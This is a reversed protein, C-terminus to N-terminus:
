AAHGGAQAAVQGRLSLGAVLSWASAPCTSLAQSVAPRRHNGPLPNGPTIQLGVDEMLAKHLHRDQAEGGTLIVQEPRQGRFTVSYYRLCLGIERTLELLIPRLSEHVAREINERRHQGVLENIPADGAAQQIRRRMEAAESEPLMMKQALAQDFRQGGIDLVKFFLVQGQRVILAKTSLYGVDLLFQTTPSTAPASLSLSRALAGPAADIALPVLGAQNLLQMQDAVVKASAAMLIVEQRLEEGQRVEGAHYFQVRDQPAALKLRDAAEWQVAASLEEKPMRPLRLSKFQMQHVPLCTVVQRGRFGGQKHLQRLLPALLENREDADDSLDHPLPAWAAGQVHFLDGQRGLQLMRISQSAIDLGIPGAPQFLDFLM